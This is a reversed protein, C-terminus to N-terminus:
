TIIYRKEPLAYCISSLLAPLLIFFSFSPMTKTGGQALLSNLSPGTIPMWGLCSAEVKYM